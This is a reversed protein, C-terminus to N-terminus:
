QQLQRIFKEYLEKWGSFKKDTGLFNNHFITILTGNVKRCIQYFHLLENYSEAPTLKQEYLCNADMFCFPHIRLITSKEEALDYWMYSTAVSARFGNISGYGMSYDDTIGCKILNQYTAPLHFKIYHQRSTSINRGSIEELKNKENQLISFADNSKWSPHLGLNYKNAHETILEQMAKNRPLINKDYTGTQKAVLFFYHPSLSNEIHLTHLYEYSDYPDKHGGFLTKFRVVSPSKLFGAANRVIGKERYSWAIDIDYSPLFKFNQSRFKLVPFCSALSVQFRNLWLNILPVHLFGAKHALSNEHAYRGYMDSTYPLYEEYRSMLYFSAALIDFSHDGGSTHFFTVSENEYTSETKQPVIGTEFLLTHPQIHYADKFNLKSYSIKPGEYSEFGSENTTISYSVGFTESFIYKCIYQLRASTKSSYILLM